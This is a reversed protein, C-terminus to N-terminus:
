RCGLEDFVFDEGVVQNSDHFKGDRGEVARQVHFVPVGSTPFGVLVDSPSYHLQIGDKTTERFKAPGCRTQFAEPTSLKGSRLDSLLAARASQTQRQSIDFARGVIVLLSLVIATKLWLPALPRRRPNV